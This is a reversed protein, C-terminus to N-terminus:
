MERILPEPFASVWCWGARPILRVMFAGQGPSESTMPYVPASLCSSSQGHHVEPMYGLRARTLSYLGTRWHQLSTPEGSHLLIAMWASACSLPVPSDGTHPRHTPGCPQWAGRSTGVDVALCWPFLTYSMSFMIKKSSDHELNPPFNM